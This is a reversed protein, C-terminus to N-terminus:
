KKSATASAPYNFFELKNEDSIENDLWCLMKDATTIEYSKTYCEEDLENVLDMLSSIVEWCYHLKAIQEEDDQANEQAIAMALGLGDIMGSQKREHPGNNYITQYEQSQYEWEKRIAEYIKSM